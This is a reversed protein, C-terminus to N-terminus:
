DIVELVVAVGAAMNPIAPKVFQWHDHQGQDDDQNHNFRKLAGGAKLVM